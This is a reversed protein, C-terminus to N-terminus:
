ITNKTDCNEAIEKWVNVNGAVDRKAGVDFSNERCAETTQYFIELFMGSELTM